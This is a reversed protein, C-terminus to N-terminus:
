IKYYQVHLTCFFLVFYSISDREQHGGAVHRLARLKVAQKAEGHLTPSTLLVARAAKNLQAFVRQYDAIDFM